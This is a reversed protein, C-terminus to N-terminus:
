PQFPLAWCGSLSLRGALRDTLWGIAAGQDALLPGAHNLLPSVTPALVVPVYTVNGGRRCWDVAMQRAQAHPVLNDNIGSAVRVVGAPKQTGIRQAAVFAQVRPERAIIDALSQGNTTWSSSHRNAYALVADGVCMTSLDSLAARGADSLYADLLPRLGPDSQVFGNISWGLAGALESGDIAATVAALDAPPAGSYTARLPVDPAYTGVLEAADGVVADAHAELLAREEFLLRFSNLQPDLRHIRDLCLAVLETPAMYPSTCFCSMTITAAADVTEPDACLRNSSNVEPMSDPPMFASLRVSVAGPGSPPMALHPSLLVSPMGIAMQTHDSLPLM